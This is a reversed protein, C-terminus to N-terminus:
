YHVFSCNYIFFLFIFFQFSPPLSVLIVKTDGLFPMPTGGYGLGHSSKSPDTASSEGNEARRQANARAEWAQLTGFEPAPLDKVRNIQEMLPKLQVQMGM